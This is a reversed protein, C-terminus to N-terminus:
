HQSADNKLHPLTAKCLRGSKQQVTFHVLRICAYMGGWGTGGERGGGEWDDCLVWSWKRHQGAAEGQSLLSFLFDESLSFLHAFPAVSLPNVELVDLYSMFSLIFFFFDFFPRALNSWEYKVRQLVMSQLTGSEETWSIRWVLISSHNSISSYITTGEQLPNELGPISGM